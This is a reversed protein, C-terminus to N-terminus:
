WGGSAGGGGFGGGGGRFGRSGGSGGGGRGGFVIALLMTSWGVERGFMAFVLGLLLLLGFIAFDPAAPAQTKGSESLPLPEGAAAKSLVEFAM